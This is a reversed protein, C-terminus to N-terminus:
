VRKEVARVGPINCAAKMKAAVGLVTKSAELYSLPQKGEAVAKVLAMLNVCEGSWVSRGASLRSAAPAVKPVFVPPVYVPEQIIAEATEKDGEKEAALAADLADQEARKRAEEDAKRQEERRIREQEDQYAIMKQKVLRRGEELPDLFGKRKAVASKHAAHALEVTEDWAKHIENELAKCIALFEEGKAFQDNNTVIIAKAQEPVSLAQQEVVEITENM